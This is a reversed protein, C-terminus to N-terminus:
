INNIKSQLVAQRDLEKIILNQMEDLEKDTFINKEILTQGTWNGKLIKENIANEIRIRYKKLKKM